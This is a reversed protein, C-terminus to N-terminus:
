LLHQFSQGESRICETPGRFFLNVRQRERGSIVSIERRIDKKLEQLCHRNKHVKDKLSEWLYFDCPRLDPSDPLWLGRRIVRGNSSERATKWLSTYSWTDTNVSKFYSYNSKNNTFANRDYTILALTEEPVSNFLTQKLAATNWIHNQQFINGMESSLQKAFM